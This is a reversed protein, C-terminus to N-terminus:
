VFLRVRVWICVCAFCLSTCVCCVRLRVAEIENPLEVDEDVVIEDVTRLVDDDSVTLSRLKL